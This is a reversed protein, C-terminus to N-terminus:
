EGSADALPYDDQAVADALDSADSAAQLAAIASKGAFFGPGKTNPKAEATHYRALDNLVKSRVPFPMDRIRDVAAQDLEKQGMTGAIRVLEKTLSIKSAVATAIAKSALDLQKILKDSVMDGPKVLDLEAKLAAQTHALMGVQTDLLRELSVSRGDGALKDNPDRM